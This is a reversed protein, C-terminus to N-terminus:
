RPDFTDSYCEFFVTMLDFEIPVEVKTGRLELGRARADRQRSERDYLSRAQRLASARCEAEGNFADVRRWAPVQGRESVSRLEWLVWASEGSATGLSTLLLVIVLRTRRVLRMM